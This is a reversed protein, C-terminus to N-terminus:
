KGANKIEKKIKGFMSVAEIEIEYPLEEYLWKSGFRYGTKPCADTTSDWRHAGCDCKFCDSPNGGVTNAKGCHCQWKDKEQHVCGSNMGNLHWRKWIERIKKVDERDPYMSAIEEINQGGSVMKRGGRGRGGKWIEGCVSLETMRTVFEHEVTEKANGRKVFETTITLELLASYGPEGHWSAQPLRLEYADEKHLELDRGMDLSRLQAMIERVEM